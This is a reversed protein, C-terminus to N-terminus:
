RVVYPIESTNINFYDFLKLGYSIKSSILAKLSYNSLEKDCCPGICIETLCDFPIRIESYPILLGNKEYFKEFHSSFNVLRWEQEQSYASHKSFVRTGMTEKIIQLNIEKESNHAEFLRKATGDRLLKRVAQDKNVYLCKGLQYDGLLSYLKQTKFGLAVGQGNGGYSRWM